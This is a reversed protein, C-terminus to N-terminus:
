PNQYECVARPVFIKGEEALLKWMVLHGNTFSFQVPSLSFNVFQDNFFMDTTGTGNDDILGDDFDYSGIRNLVEKVLEITMGPQLSDCYLYKRVAKWYPEVGLRHALQSLVAREENHFQIAEITRSTLIGGILFILILLIILIVKSVLSQKKFNEIIKM